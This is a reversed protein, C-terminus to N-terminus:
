VDMKKAPTTWWEAQRRRESTRINWKIMTNWRFALALKAKVIAM